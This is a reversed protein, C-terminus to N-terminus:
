GKPNADNKGELSLQRKVAEIFVRLLSVMKYGYIPPPGLRFEMALTDQIVNIKADPWRSEVWWCFRELLQIVIKPEVKRLAEQSGLIGMLVKAMAILTKSEAMEKELAAKEAMRTEAQEIEFQFNVLFNHMWEKTESTYAQIAKIGATKQEQIAKASIEQNFQIRAKAQKELSLVETLRNEALKYEAQIDELRKEAEARAFKTNATVLKKEVLGLRRDAKAIKKQLLSLERDLISKTEKKASIEENLRNRDELSQLVQWVEPGNLKVSETLRAVITQTFDRKELKEVDCHLSRLKASQFNVEQKLGVKQDKLKEVESILSKMERQAHSVKEVEQEKVSKAEVLATRLKGVKEEMFDAYRRFGESVQSRSRYDDRIKGPDEGNKLREFVEDKIRM